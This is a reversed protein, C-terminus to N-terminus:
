FILKIPASSSADTVQSSVVCFWQYFECPYWVICALNVILFPYISYRLIDHRTFPDAVGLTITALIFNFCFFVFKFFTPWSLRMRSCRFKKNSIKQRALVNHINHSFKFSFFSFLESPMAHTGMNNELWSVQRVSDDRPADSFHLLEQSTTKMRM